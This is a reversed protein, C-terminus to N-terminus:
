GNFLEDQLEDHVEMLGKAGGSKDAHRLLALMAKGQMILLNRVERARDDAATNRRKLAEVEQELLGLRASWTRFPKTACKWVGWVAGATVIFIMIMEIVGLAVLVDGVTIEHM